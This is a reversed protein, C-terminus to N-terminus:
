VAVRKRGSSSTSLAFVVQREFVDPSVDLSTNTRFLQGVQRTERDAQQYGLLPDPRNSINNCDVSEQADVLSAFRMLSSDEVRM